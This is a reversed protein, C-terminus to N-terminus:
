FVSRSSSAEVNTRVYLIRRKMKSRIKGRRRDSKSQTLRITFPLPQNRTRAGTYWARPQGLFRLASREIHTPFCTSGYEPRCGGRTASPLFQTVLLLVRPAGPWAFVRTNSASQRSKEVLMFM